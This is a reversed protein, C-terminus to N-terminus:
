RSPLVRWMAGSDAQKASYMRKAVPDLVVDSNAFLNVGIEGDVEENEEAKGESEIAIVNKLELEAIKGISDEGQDRRDQQWLEVVRDGKRCLLARREEISGSQACSGKNGYGSHSATQITRPLSLALSEWNRFHYLFMSFAQQFRRPVHTWRPQKKLLLLGAFLQRLCRSYCFTFAAHRKM